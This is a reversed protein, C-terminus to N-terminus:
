HHDNEEYEIELDIGADILTAEYCEELSHPAGNTHVEVETGDENIKKVYTSKGSGSIGVCLLLKPM